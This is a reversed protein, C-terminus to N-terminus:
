LKRLFFEQISSCDQCIVPTCDTCLQHLQHHLFCSLLHFCATSAKRKLSQNELLHTVFECHFQCYPSSLAFSFLSHHLHFYIHLCTVGVSWASCYWGHPTNSKLLIIHRFDRQLTQYALLWAILVGDTDLKKRSDGTSIARVGNNNVCQPQGSNDVVKSFTQTDRGTSLRDCPPM